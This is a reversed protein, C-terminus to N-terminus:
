LIRKKVAKIIQDIRSEAKLFYHEAGLAIASKVDSASDLNSVVFVPIAATQDDNKIQKLIEFGDLGPLILDLLIIHPQYKKVTELAVLGNGINLADFGGAIIGKLLVDALLADDEVILM